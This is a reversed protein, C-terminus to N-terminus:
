EERKRSRLTVNLSSGPVELAEKWLDVPIYRAADGARNRGSDCIYVGTLNGLHDRETGILSVVHNSFGNGYCNPNNWLIGANVGAMVGFGKEFEEASRAVSSAKIIHGPLGWERILRDRYTANTAGSLYSRADVVCLGKLAAYHVLEDESTCIGFLRLTNRSSVIGCTGQFGLNNQGQRYDLVEAVKQPEGCILAKRGDPLLALSPKLLPIESEYSVRELTEGKQLMECKEVTEAKEMIGLKGPMGANGEHFLFGSESLTQRILPIREPAVALEVRSIEPHTSFLNALCASPDDTLLFRSINELAAFTGKCLNQEADALMVLPNDFIRVANSDSSDCPLLVGWSSDSKGLPLLRGQSDLNAFFAPTGEASRGFFVPKGDSSFLCGNERDFARTLTDDGFGFCRMAEAARLNNSDRPPEASLMNGPTLRTAVSSLRNATGSEDFEQLTKSVAIQGSKRLVGALKATGVSLPM